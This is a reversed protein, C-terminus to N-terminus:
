VWRVMRVLRMGTHKRNRQVIFLINMENYLKMWCEIENIQMQYLTVRNTSAVVSNTAETGWYIRFNENIDYYGGSEEKAISLNINSIINKNDKPNFNEWNYFDSYRHQLRYINVDYPYDLLELPFHYMDGRCMPCSRKNGTCYIIICQKCTKHNNSCIKTTSDRNLCIPCSESM